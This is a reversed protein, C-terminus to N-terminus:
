WIRGEIYSSVEPNQKIYEIITDSILTGLNETHVPEFGFYQFAKGYIIFDVTAGTYIKYPDIAGGNIRPDLIEIGDTGKKRIGYKLGSIQLPTRNASILANANTKILTLLEEGTCTFRVITNYFPLIEIIDLKRIPGSPQNKRIGGSNILAFDSQAHYRMVDTIYNGINSEGTRSRIWDTQLNGITQGFDREINNQFHAVQTQIVPDAKLSDVWLPILRYNYTSVSDGLVTLDLRGLMQCKSGAQLIIIRNVLLPEKLLTHSHGGIIIDAGNVSLALQNDELVGQHTLLIILDTLPDIKNIWAQTTAAVNKVQIQKLHSSAVLDDLKHTTLGIVGIKIDNIEYIAYAMDALLEGECYLNASLFPFDAVAMLRKINKWGHDFEHNGIVLANYGIRNMMNIFGGGKAGDVIINSIPSGTQFDGGDLILTYSNKEKNIAGSLAAMGGILPRPDKDIWTARSPLFQGHMDNTHLITLRAENQPAPLCPTISILLLLLLGTATIFLKHPNKIIFMTKRMKLHLQQRNKESNPNGTEDPYQMEFAM